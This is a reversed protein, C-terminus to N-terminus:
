GCIPFYDMALDYTPYKHEYDRRVEDKKDKVFNKASEESYRCSNILCFIVDEIYEDINRYDKFKSCERLRKRKEFGETIINYFEKAESNSPCKEVLNKSYKISLKEQYIKSFLKANDICASINEEDVEFLKLFFEEYDGKFEM